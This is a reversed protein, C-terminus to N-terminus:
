FGAAEGAGRPDPVASMLGTEDIYIAQVDGYPAREQVNHGFRILTQIVTIDYAGEEVYLVDPLWQHHFRPQTVAQGLTQDFRTFNLITQAVSTIIKSGGPSGLILYPQKGKLVITPTMSSLMRKGREIKNAEGGVLGYTNPVGAKVAFDDMENNLLFGAGGVVLKSGYATNITYTVSVMNGENDCVSYHTTQDSNDAPPLGPRVTNSPTAHLPDVLSRRRQLYVSDLLEGPIHWYSPDGLHEARDAYALRAMETFLHIYEPTDPTWADFSKSQLLKLIQGLVIGGSSPPPMSYVQLSDFEFRLPERWISEYNALDGHTILGGYEQMTAVISDAVEGRYFADPGEAAIMYLTRALQRFQVLEGPQPTLGDPFFTEETVQFRTLGSRNQGLSTSLDESVVFGTDALGAAYGVLQDWDMTGYEEWLTYLGAVTGPVGAALAGLTTADAIVNSDEDLFMDETAAEPATERFDIARIEESEGHRVVAFGGGGINGAEPYVVALAFGVAVAVDFANGGENFVKMGVETALPAATTVVGHEYVKEVQVSDCGALLLLCLIVPAILCLRRRRNFFQKSNM